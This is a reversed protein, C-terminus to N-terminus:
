KETEWPREGMSLILHTDTAGVVEWGVDVWVITETKLKKIPPFPLFKVQTRALAPTPNPNSLFPHPHFAYYGLGFGMLWALLALTFLKTWDSRM